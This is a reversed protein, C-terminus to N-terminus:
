LALWSWYGQEPGPVAQHWYTSLSVEWCSLSRSVWFPWWLLLTGSTDTFASVISYSMEEWRGTGQHAYIFGCLWPPAGQNPQLDFKPGGPLILNLLVSLQPALHSDM